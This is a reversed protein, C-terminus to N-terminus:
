VEGELGKINLRHLIIQLGFCELGVSGYSVSVLFIQLKGIVHFLNIFLMLLLFAFFFFMNYLFVVLIFIKLCLYCILHLSKLLHNKQTSHSEEDGM